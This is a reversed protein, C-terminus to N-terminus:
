PEPREGPAQLNLTCSSRAALREAPGFGAKGGCPVTACGLPGDPDPSEETATLVRGPRTSVTMLVAEVCLCLRGGGPRAPARGMVQSSLVM